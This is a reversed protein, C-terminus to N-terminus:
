STMENIVESAGTNKLAVILNTKYRKNSAAIPYVTSIKNLSNIYINKILINRSILYPEFFYIKGQPGIIKGLM